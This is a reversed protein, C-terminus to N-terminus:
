VYVGRKSGKKVWPKRVLAPCHHGPMQSHSIYHSIVTRATGESRAQIKGVLALGVTIFM